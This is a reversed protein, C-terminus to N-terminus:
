INYKKVNEVFVFENYAAISDNDGIKKILKEFEYSNFWNYIEGNVEKALEFLNGKKEEYNFRIKYKYDFLALKTNKKIASLSDYMIIYPFVEDNSDIYKDLKEGISINLETYDADGDIQYEVEYTLESKESINELFDKITKINNLKNEEIYKFITDTNFDLEYNFKENRSLYSIEFPLSKMIRNVEKTVCREKEYSIEVLINKELDILGLYTLFKHITGEEYNDNNIKLKYKFKKALEKIKNSNSEDLYYHLYNLEDNDVYYEYNNYGQFQM